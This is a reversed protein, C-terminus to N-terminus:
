IGLWSYLISFAADTVIVLFIAQVVSVTTQRGVSDASGMVQFGQFCGVVAVIMAFVPAKGIGLLFSRLTVERPIRDLFDLYSVDLLTAAMVMGGLVGAADAVLTLLPLAIMLGLIKPLVLLEFPSIGITKLADIEETVKMTGIEATYASGTRGAIIIATMMPGFERFMTLTVLDVIFINAGYSQLQLGGQYAIVIGLLFSLLAVIPIARVGAREVCSFLARWRIRSPKRITRLFAASVEGIFTLLRLSQDLREITEQGLRGLMGLARPIPADDVTKTRAEILELLARFEERLGTLQAPVDQAAYTRLMRQLLWAGNTDLATIGSADLIVPRPTRAAFSTELLALNRMTWAGTLRLQGARLDIKANESQETVDQAPLQSSPTVSCEPCQRRRVTLPSFALGVQM